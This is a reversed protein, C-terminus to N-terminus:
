CGSGAPHVGQSCIVLEQYCSQTKLSNGVDQSYNSAPLQEWPDKRETECRIPVPLTEPIHVGTPPSSPIDKWKQSGQCQQRGESVAKKKKKRCYPM